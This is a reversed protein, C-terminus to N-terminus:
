EAAPLLVIGDVDSVLVRGPTFTAGGIEVPVDREGAGTKGSKRPVTGLARIGLPLERLVASDRVAGNVIVGAWGNEVGSGAILDGMLATRLSGGGDIVLVRGEGPEALVQKVLANDEFCRITVVPGSFIARGGYHGFQTECIELAEGHADYLDATGTITTQDPVTCEKTSTTPM